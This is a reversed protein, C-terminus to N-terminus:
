PRNPVGADDAGVAPKPRPDVVGFVPSLKPVGAVDAGVKPATAGVKPVAAVDAGVAANPPNPVGAEVAGVNPATGEAVPNPPNPVVAAAAAGVPLRPKPPVPAVEVGPVPNVKPATAVAAGAGNVPNVKPPVEAVVAGVAPVPLFCQVCLIQNVRIENILFRCSKIIKSLNQIWRHKM